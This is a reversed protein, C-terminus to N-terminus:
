RRSPSAVARTRDHCPYSRTRRGTGRGRFMAGRSPGPLLLGSDHPKQTPMYSSSRLRRDESGALARTSGPSGRRAGPRPGDVLLRCSWPRIRKPLRGHTFPGPMMGGETATPPDFAAAAGTISAGGGRSTRRAASRDRNSTDPAASTTVTSDATAVRADARLACCPRSSAAVASGGPRRSPRTPVTCTPRRARAPPPGRRVPLEAAPRRAGAPRAQPPAPRAPRM